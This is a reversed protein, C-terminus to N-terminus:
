RSALTSRPDCTALKVDITAPRVVMVPAAGHQLLESAVSGLAWRRWGGRGHTAMVVLGAASTEVSRALEDAPRGYRTEWVVRLDDARLRAALRMLYARADTDARAEIEAVRAEGVYL